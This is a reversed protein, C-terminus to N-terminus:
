IEQRTLKIQAVALGDDKAAAIADGHGARMAQRLWKIHIFFQRLKHAIQALIVEIINNDMGPKQGVCRFFFWDKVSQKFLLWSKLHIARANNRHLRLAWVVGCM